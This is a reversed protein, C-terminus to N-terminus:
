QSHDTSHIHRYWAVQKDRLQALQEVALPQPPLTHLAVPPTPQQLTTAVHWALGRLTVDQGIMLNTPIALANAILQALYPSREVAGGGLAVQAPAHPMEEFILRLQMALSEYLAQLIDLPTTEFRIGHINGIAHPNWNPSREGGLHPLVTLGHAGIPREGLWKECAELSPLALTQRAWQYLNGGESTAGGLLWQKEGVAYGWLPVGLPDPLTATLQRLACTTGVTLSVGNADAGVSGLHAAYGDAIGLLWVADKLQDWRTIPVPCIPAVTVPPFHHASLALADFWISDWDINKMNVLGTWSALSAGIPIPRQAWTSYCYTIFDMWHAVATLVHPTHNQMWGFWSPAYATHVHCGSRQHISADLSAFDRVFEVARTDAYTWLPTIPQFDQDLGVLNGVFSCFAVASIEGARPHTLAHDILAEIEERLHVADFIAVGSPERTMSHSRTHLSEAVLGYATEYLAVKSSSSGVDVVLALTM